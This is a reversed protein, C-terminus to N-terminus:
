PCSGNVVGADVEDCDRNLDDAENVALCALCEVTQDLADVLANPDSLNIGPFADVLDVEKRVCQSRVQAAVKDVCAKAIVGEPDAFICTEIDTAEAAGQKLASKKCENFVKLKTDQCKKAKSTVKQQCKSKFKDESPAIVADLDLGFIAHVLDLEKQVAADNVTTANTAGFDPPQASCKKSDDAETKSKAKAVKGRNDATLCEEITQPDLQGKSGGKLCALIEKGQTSAIKLFNKNLTNICQQQKPSQEAAGAPGHLFISLSLLLGAILCAQAQFHIVTTEKRGRRSM